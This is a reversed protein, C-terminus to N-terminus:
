IEIAAVAQSILGHVKASVEDGHRAITDASLELLIGRSAMRAENSEFKFFLIQYMVREAYVLFDAGRLVASGADGPDCNAIQFGISRAEYARRNFLTIWPSDESMKRLSTLTLTALALATTGVGLLAPLLGLIEKHVTSGHVKKVTWATAEQRISWGTTLLTNLYHDMWQEIDQDRDPYKRSAARQALLTWNAVATKVILPTGEPFTVINSDVVAAEQVSDTLEPLPEKALELHSPPEVQLELNAIKSSIAAENNASSM